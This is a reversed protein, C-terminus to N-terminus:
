YDRGRGNTNSPNSDLDGAHFTSSLGVSSDM